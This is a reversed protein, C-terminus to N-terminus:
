PQLDKTAATAPTSPPSEATIKEAKHAIVARKGACSAPITFLAVIVCILVRHFEGEYVDDGLFLILVAAVVAIFGVVGCSVMAWQYVFLTWDLM